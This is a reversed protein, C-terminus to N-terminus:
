HKIHMTKSPKYIYQWRTAMKHGNIVLQYDISIFGAFVKLDIAVEM